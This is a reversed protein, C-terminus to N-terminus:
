KLLQYGKLLKLLKEIPLGVVNYYSGEIHKIFNKAYDQIAYAGAKDLIKHNHCYFNIESESLDKFTVKTEVTCSQYTNDLTDYLCLGSIVMHTKGSLIKLFKKAENINKPKPFIKNKLVVITDAGLVLGKFKQKSTKAKKIALLRVQSKINKVKPNLTETILKNNIQCFPLNFEKLIEVRRESTSALYLIRQKL